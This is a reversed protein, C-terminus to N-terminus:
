AIQKGELFVAKANLLNKLGPGLNKGVTSCGRKNLGLHYVGDEVSGGDLLYGYSKLFKSIATKERNDLVRLAM